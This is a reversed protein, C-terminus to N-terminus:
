YVTVSPFLVYIMEPAYQWPKTLICHVIFDRLARKRNLFNFKWTENQLRVSHNNVVVLCCYNFDPFSWWFFRLVIMRQDLLSRDFIWVFSRLFLLVRWQDSLFRWTQKSMLMHLIRYHMSINYLKRVLELFTGGGIHHLQLWMYKWIHQEHLEQAPNERLFVDQLM